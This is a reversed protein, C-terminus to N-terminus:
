VSDFKPSGSHLVRELTVGFHPGGQENMDMRSPNVAAGAALRFSAPMQVTARGELRPSGSLGYGARTEITLLPRGEVHGIHALFYKYADARWPRLGWQVAGEKSANEWSYRLASYSGSTLQVHEEEVNGVIGHIANGLWKQWFAEWADLPLAEV